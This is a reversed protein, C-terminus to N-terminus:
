ELDERRYTMTQSPEVQGPLFVSLFLREDERWIEVRPSGPGSLWRLGNREEDFGVYAVVVTGPPAYHQVRLSQNASDWRYIALDEHVVRDEELLFDRQEVFGGGGLRQIRLYGHIPEGHSMGQGRWSGLLFELRGMAHQIAKLEQEWQKPEM